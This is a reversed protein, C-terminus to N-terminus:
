VFLVLWRNQDPRDVLPPEDNGAVATRRQPLDPDGPIKFDNAVTFAVQSRQVENM